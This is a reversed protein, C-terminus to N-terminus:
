FEREIIDAIEEFSSGLDNIEALCNSDPIGGIEDIECYECVENPLEKTAIRGGVKFGGMSWVADGKFKEDNKVVDCLVGLCCFGMDDRLVSKTQDYEGSRLAKVWRKKIDAYM